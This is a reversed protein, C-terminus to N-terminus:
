SFSQIVKLVALLLVLHMAVMISMAMATDSKYIRAFAEARQQVSATYGSARSTALPSEPGFCRVITGHGGTLRGNAQTVKAEQKEFDAQGEASARAHGRHKM